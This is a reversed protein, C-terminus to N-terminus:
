DQMPLQEALDKTSVEAFKSDNISNGNNSIYKLPTKEYDSYNYYVYQTDEKQAYTANVKLQLDSVKQQDVKQANNLIVDYASVKNTFTMIENKFGLGVTLAGLALALLMAVM